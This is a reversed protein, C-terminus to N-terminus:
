GLLIPLSAWCSTVVTVETALVDAVLSGIQVWVVALIHVIVRVMVLWLGMELSMVVVVIQGMNSVWHSKMINWVMVGCHSMM